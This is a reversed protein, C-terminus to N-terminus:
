HRRFKNTTTEERGPKGLYYSAMLRWNTSRVKTPEDITVGTATNFSSGGTFPNRVSATSYEGYLDFRDNVRYKLGVNALGGFRWQTSGDPAIIEIAADSVSFWTGTLGVSFYPSWRSVLPVIYRTIALSVSNTHLDSLNGTDLFESGTGADTRYVLDSKTYTYGLRLAMAALIDIEVQGGVNWGNKTTLERQFLNLPTGAVQQLLFRGNNNFGGSLGLSWRPHLLSHVIDNVDEAKEKMQASAKMPAAALVLVLCCKIGSVVRM